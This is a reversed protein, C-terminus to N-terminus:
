ACEEAAIQFSPSEREGAINRLLDTEASQMTFSPELGGKRM